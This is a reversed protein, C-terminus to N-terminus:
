SGGGILLVINYLLVAPWFPVLILCLLFNGSAMWYDPARTADLVFAAVWGNVFLWVLIAQRLRTM